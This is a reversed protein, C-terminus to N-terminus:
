LLDDRVFRERGRHRGKGGPVAHGRVGGLVSLTRHTCDTALTHTGASDHVCHRVKDTMDQVEDKFKEGLSVAAASALTRQQRQHLPSAVTTAHVNCANCASLACCPRGCGCGGGAASSITTISRLRALPALSRGRLSLSSPVMRLCRTAARQTPLARAWMPTPRGLARPALMPARPAKSAAASSSSSAAERTARRAACSGASPWSLRRPVQYM